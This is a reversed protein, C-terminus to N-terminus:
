FYSFRECEEISKGRYFYHVVRTYHHIINLIITDVEHNGTVHQM